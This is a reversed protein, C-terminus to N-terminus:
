ILKLQIISKSVKELDLKLNNLYKYDQLDQAVRLM